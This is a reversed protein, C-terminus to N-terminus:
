DDELPAMSGLLWKTGNVEFDVKLKAEEGVRIMEIDTVVGSGFVRHRVRSGIRFGRFSDESSGRKPVDDRNSRTRLGLRARRFGTGQPGRTREWDSGHERREDFREYREALRENHLVDAPIEALFRSAQFYRMQGFIVYTNATTLLLRHKARTMAVYFLRREEDLDKDANEGDRQIPFLAEAVGVVIVTDFELGKAAHITMLNIKNEDAADRQESAEDEDLNQALLFAGLHDPAADDQDLGISGPDFGRVAEALQYMNDRRDDSEVSGDDGYAHELGTEVIVRAVFDAAKAAADQEPAFSENDDEALALQWDARLGDILQLFKGASAFGRQPLAKGTSSVIESPKIGGGLVPQEAGLGATDEGLTEPMVERRLAQECSIAQRQALKRVDAVFKDGLGRKPQNIVREFASNDLPNMILRLYALLDRVELREFFSAGRRVIYAVGEQNLALELARSRANSRYLVAIDGPKVGAELSERVQQLMRSAEETESATYAVTIKDGPAASTRLTKGLRGANNAIVSNAGQLINASSRYNEELRVLGGKQVGHDDIYRQLVGQVVGRWGYILQDDDGVVSAAVGISTFRRLFQYQIENTDQFEDVLIHEFSGCFERAIGPSQALIELVRLILEAFDVYGERRCLDDYIEWTKDYWEPHQDKAEFARLGADKRRGIYDSLERIERKDVDLGTDRAIRRLLTQKEGENVVVFHAPLGAEAHYKRLIRLCVSHFTGVWPFRHQNAVVAGVRERMERAAKNTFTIAMIRHPMIGGHEVLWAIRHALVTTKGSGAGALVLLAKDHSAVAQRQEANLNATM